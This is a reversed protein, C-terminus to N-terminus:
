STCTPVGLPKDADLSAIWDGPHHWEDRKRPDKVTVGFDLPANASIRRRLSRVHIRLNVPQTFNGFGYDGGFLPLSDLRVLRYDAPELPKRSDPEDAIDRGSLIRKHSGIGVYVFPRERAFYNAHSGEAVYVVPHGERASVASWYRRRGRDHESYGAECPTQADPSLRITIQELDGEHWNQWDDLVYMFWYQVFTGALNQAVNWYVVPKAARRLRTQLDAYGAVGDHMELGAMKLALHCRFGPAEPHARCGHESAISALTPRGNLLREDREQGNELVEVLDTNTVYRPLGVPEFLEGRMLQIIPAFRDAIEPRDIDVTAPTPEPLSGTEPEHHVVVKYLGWGVVALGALAAVAIGVRTWM